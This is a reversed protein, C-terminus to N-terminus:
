SKKFQELAAKLRAELTPPMTRQPLQRGVKITVQYSEVLTLCPPCCELHVRIQQCYEASLEGSCFDMLWEEIQTCTINM